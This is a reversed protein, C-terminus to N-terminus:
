QSSWKETKQILREEESLLSDFDLLATVDSVAM